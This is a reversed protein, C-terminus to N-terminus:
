KRRPRMIRESVKTLTARPLVRAGQAFLYNNAGPILHSRGRELARLARSVVLEPRMRPGLAAEAAGVTDFFATDTAGPCLALVRVGRARNEAWLAESFSLVFAKTAGYVAMYPVPQFAALSALHIIAGSERQLMGPLFAHTVGVLGACNLMVEEHQREASIEEFRGYTGFGANNILIDVALGRARTEGLLAQAASPKSLDAVIVQSRVGHRQALAAALAALKDRSRAVLVLHAGREALAQAFAAGIGMSAGTVLATRDRYVLPKM